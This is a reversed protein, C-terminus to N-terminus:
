RLTDFLDCPQFPRMRRKERRSSITVDPQHAGRPRFALRTGQIKSLPCSYDSFHLLALKAQDFPQNEILYM